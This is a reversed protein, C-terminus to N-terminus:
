AKKKRGGQECNREVALTEVATELINPNESGDERSVRDSSRSTRCGIEFGRQLLERFDPLIIQLRNQLKRQAVLLDERTDLAEITETSPIQGKTGEKREKEMAVFHFGFDERRKVEETSVEVV